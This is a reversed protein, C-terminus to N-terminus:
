KTTVATRNLRAPKTQRLEERVIRRVVTEVPQSQNHIHQKLAANILLQYNGGGAVNV